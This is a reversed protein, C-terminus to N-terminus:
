VGARTYTETEVNDLQTAISQMENHTLTECADIRDDREIGFHERVRRRVYRVPEDNSYEIGVRSALNYVVDRESPYSKDALEKMVDKKIYNGRKCEVDWAHKLLRTAYPREDSEIGWVERNVIERLDDKTEDGTLEEDTYERIFNRLEEALYYRRDGLNSVDTGLRRGIEAVLEEERDYVIRETM